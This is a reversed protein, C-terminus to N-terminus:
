LQRKLEDAFGRAEKVGNAYAKEYWELAKSLDKETGLGYEYCKAVNVDAIHFGRDAAELYLQFGKAPDYMDSSETMYLSGLNNIAPAYGANASKLCWELARRYDEEV